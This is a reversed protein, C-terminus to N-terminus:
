FNKRIMFIFINCMIIIIIIIIIIIPGQIYLENRLYVLFQILVLLLLILLKMRKPLVYQALTAETYTVSESVAEFHSVTAMNTVASKM